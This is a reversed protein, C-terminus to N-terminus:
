IEWTDVEKVDQSNESDGAFLWGGVSFPLVMPLEVSYINAICCNKNRAM